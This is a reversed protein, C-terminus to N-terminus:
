NAMDSIYKIRVLRIEEETFDAGFEKFAAKIDDKEQHALFDCIDAM